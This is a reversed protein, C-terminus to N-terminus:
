KRGAKRAAKRAVKRARKAANKADVAANWADVESRREAYVRRAERTDTPRRREPQDSSARRLPAVNREFVGSFGIAALIAAASVGSIGRM